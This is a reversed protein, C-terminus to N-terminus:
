PCRRISDSSAAHFDKEILAHWDLKSVGEFAVFNHRSRVRRKPPQAVAFQECESFSLSELDREDGVPVHAVLLGEGHPSEGNDFEPGVMGWRQFSVEVPDAARNVAYRATGM